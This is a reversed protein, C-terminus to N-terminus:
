QLHRKRAKRVRHDHDTSAIKKLSPHARRADSVGSRALYALAYAANTRIRRSRSSLLGILPKVSSIDFIGRWALRNVAFAASWRVNWNPDSLLATLPKVAATNTAAISQNALDGLAFAANQRVVDDADHLSATLPEVIRVDFIGQKALRRVADAALGRIEAKRHTLAAILGDFDRKAELKEVNPDFLWM